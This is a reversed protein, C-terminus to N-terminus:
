VAPDHRSCGLVAIERHIAGAFSVALILPPMVATVLNLPNGTLELGGVGVAVVSRGTAQIM